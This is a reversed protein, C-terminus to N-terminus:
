RDIGLHERLTTGSYDSRFVGREQLLPVVKDAFPDLGGPTVHPVLIFGDSADAQVYTNIAEAVTAPSGVFTQRGSVEVVLDRISLNKAEALERWERVTAVPDRYVRTQARGKALADAGVVPEVDPLPGEPDYGSLDRNWVQELFKIATQGSVQQYRVIGALEEAEADTDGLVFTAAPLVLLQHPQRGYAALRRKVDAYFKQGAELTGHRTFIADATAAAFERGEDSDGAQLIVPRGQPGRPVNFRGAIDFQADHREFEGARPNRLFVGSSKDAAIDDAGWSDFLEFATDLFLKARQYRQEEPLYGGRRFNEGTFADWSTVVNWGARGESLHDLSAFQRAVEYPENFTSNITGTLGLRETVAALAALVTFTDPRGVVDLDYIRGAHERLRLGEALFFFDFKAREATRALHAFSSFEIHSGAEPDSWVTTNNVGPFHAALHIQKM